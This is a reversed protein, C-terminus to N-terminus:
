ITYILFIVFLVVAGIPILLGKWDKPADRSTEIMHRTGPLIWLMVLVILIGVIIKEWTGM